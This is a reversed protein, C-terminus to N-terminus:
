YTGARNQIESFPSIEKLIAELATKNGMVKGIADAMEDSETRVKNNMMNEDVHIDDDYDHSFVQDVHDVDIAENIMVTLNAKSKDANKPQMNADKKRSKSQKEASKTSKRKIKSRNSKETEFVYTNRRRKETSRTVPKEVLFKRNVGVNREMEPSSDTGSSNAAM